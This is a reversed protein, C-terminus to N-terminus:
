TRRRTENVTNKVEQLMDCISHGLLNVNTDPNRECWAAACKALFLILPHLVNLEPHKAFVLPWQHTMTLTTKDGDLPIAPLIADIIAAGKGQTVPATGSKHDRLLTLIHRRLPTDENLFNLTGLHVDVIPITPIPEPSTPRHKKNLNRNTVRQQANVANCITLLTSASAGEAHFPADPFPTLRRYTPIVPLARTCIDSPNPNTGSPKTVAVYEESHRKKRKQDIRPQQHDQPLARETIDIDPM